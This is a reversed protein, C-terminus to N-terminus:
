IVEMKAGCEGCYKMFSNASKVLINVKDQATEEYYCYIDKIKCGCNSCCINWLGEHETKKVIWKAKKQKPITPQEDIMRMFMNTGIIRLPCDSCYPTGAVDCNECYGENEIYRKFENADIRRILSKM